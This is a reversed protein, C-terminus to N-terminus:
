WIVATKTMEFQSIIYTHSLFRLLVRRRQRFDLLINQTFRRHMIGFCDDFTRGAEFRIHVIENIGM